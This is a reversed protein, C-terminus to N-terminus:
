VQTAATSPERQTVMDEGRNRAVSQEKLEEARTNWRNIGAQKAEWQAVRRLYRPSSKGSAWLDGTLSLFYFVLLFAITWEM